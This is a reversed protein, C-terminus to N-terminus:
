RLDGCERVIFDLGDCRTSTAALAALDWLRRTTHCFISCIVDTPGGCEQGRMRVPFDDLAVQLQVGGAHHRQVLRRLLSMPPAAGSGAGTGACIGDFHGGRESDRGPSAREM